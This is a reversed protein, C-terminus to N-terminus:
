AGGVTLEDFTAYDALIATFSPYAAALADFNWGLAGALNGTPRKVETYRVTFKYRTEEAGEVSYPSVELDDASFYMDIGDVPQKLMVVEGRDFVRVLNNAAAVSETFIELTGTRSGLRGLVVIPDSRGIIRHVTNNSARGASYDTISKAQESYNPAIPVMLWPQEVTLNASTLVTTVHTTRTSASLHATGTWAYEVEATDPTNGDFYPQDLLTQVYASDDGRFMRITDAWMRKGSAMPNATDAPNRWQLYWGATAAGAPAQAVVQLHAGAYFSGVTWPSNSNSITAGASDRWNIFIRVEYDKETALFAGMGLWQDPAVPVRYSASTVAVSPIASTGDSVAQLINGGAKLMQSFSNTVSATCNVLTWSNYLNEFSPNPVYNTATVYEDVYAAYTNVGAAAEYDTILTTGTSPSPLQGASVRVENIGNSDTRVVKTVSSEQTINLQVSGTSPDPTATISSTM